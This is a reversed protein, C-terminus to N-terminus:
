GCADLIWRYGTDVQILYGDKGLIWRYGIGVQIWYGGTDLIWRYGPNVQDLMWKYETDVQIWYGGTDLIGM